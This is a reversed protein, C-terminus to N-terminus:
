RCRGALRRPWAHHPLLHAAREAHVGAAPCTSRQALLIQLRHSGPDWRAANVLRSRPYGDRAVLIAQLQTASKALLGGLLVTAIGVWRLRRGGLEITAVARTAPLVAGLGVFVVMTPPALLMVADFLGQVAVAVILGIAALASGGLLPDRARRMAMIALAGLWGLWLGAGLFGRETLLAIWDSSPWPNTPIPDRNSFSPDGVTTVLPYTVFWNGPGVGLIPHRRALEFSNRYQILRGRGSGERYNVVDRLSDRYPSNSRWELRNPVLLAALTGLALALFFGAVRGRALRQGPGKTVLGALTAALLMAACGVWAARSRSLVVAAVMASAAGGTALAVLRHRTTVLLWGALPLGLVMLHALFNRNGLTGGPARTDALLESQWGYAQALGTSGGIVIALVLGGVLIARGGRQAAYRAAVFAAAGSLSVAFSSLALWRNTALLAAMGSTAVFLGLLLEGIGLELRPARILVLLLAILATSLLGAEKPVSFRDLDFVTSPVVAVMVGIAGLGLVLAVIVAMWRGDVPPAPPTQMSRITSVLPNPDVPPMWVLNRRHGVEDKGGGILRDGQFDTPDFVFPNGGSHHPQSTMELTPENSPAGNGLLDGSKELALLNEGLWDPEDEGGAFLRRAELAPEEGDDRHVLLGRALAVVGLRRPGLRHRPSAVFRFDLALGVLHRSELSLPHDEESFDNPKVLISAMGVAQPEFRGVHEPFQDFPRGRFHDVAGQFVQQAAVWWSLIGVQATGKSQAPITGHYRYGIAPIGMGFDEDAGVPDGSMKGIGPNAQEFGILIQEQVLGPM